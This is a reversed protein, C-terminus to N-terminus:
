LNLMRKLLTFDLNSKKPICLSIVSSQYIFSVAKYQFFHKYEVIYFGAPNLNISKIEYILQSAMLGTKLAKGLSEKSTWLITNFLVKSLALSAKLGKEAKTLQTEVASSREECIDEIDIGLPHKEPFTIAIAAKNTHAISIKTNPLDLGEIVPFDFIGHDILIDSLNKVEKLKRIASKACYRGSLYTQMRIASFGRSVVKEKPHLITQNIEAKTNSCHSFVSLFKETDRNFIIEEVIM